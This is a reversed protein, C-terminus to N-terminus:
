FLICLRSNKWRRKKLPTEKTSNQINKITNTTTTTTTPPSISSSALAAARLEEVIFSDESILRQLESRFAVYETLPLTSETRQVLEDNLRYYMSAPDLALLEALHSLSPGNLRSILPQLSDFQGQRNEFWQLVDDNTWQQLLRVTSHTSQQELDSQIRFDHQSFVSSYDSTRSSPRTRDSALPNLHRRIQRLVSHSKILTMNNIWSGDIQCDREIVIGLLLTRYSQATCYRYIFQSLNDSKMKSSVCFLCVTSRHILQVLSDISQCIDTMVFEVSYQKEVQVRDRISLCIQSLSEDANFM